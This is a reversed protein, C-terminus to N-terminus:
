SRLAVAEILLLAIGDRPLEDGPRFNILRIQEQNGELLGDPDALQRGHEFILAVRDQYPFVACVLGAAPHRFNISRWGFRVKPVFDPRIDILLTVLRRALTAMDPPLGELLRKLDASFSQGANM